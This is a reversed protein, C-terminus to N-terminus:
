ITPPRLDSSYRLEKDPTVPLSNFRSLEMLMSEIEAVLVLILAWFSTLDKDTM